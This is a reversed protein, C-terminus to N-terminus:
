CLCLAVTQFRCACPEECASRHPGHVLWERGERLNLLCYRGGMGALKPEDKEASRRGLFAITCQAVHGHDRGASILLVLQATM